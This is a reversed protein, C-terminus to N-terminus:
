GYHPLSFSMDWSVTIVMNSGGLNHQQDRKNRDTWKKTANHLFGILMFSPPFPAAHSFGAMKKTLKQLLVSDCSLVPPQTAWGEQSLLSCCHVLSSSRSHLSPTTNAVVFCHILFIIWFVILVHHLAKWVVSRCSTVCRHCVTCLLSVATHRPRETNLRIQGWIMYYLVIFLLRKQWPPM